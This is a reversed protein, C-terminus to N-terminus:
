RPSGPQVVQLLVEEPSRPDGVPDLVLEDFRLDIRELDSLAPFHRLAQLLLAAKHEFPPEGVSDRLRGWAVICADQGGLGLLEGSPLPSARLLVESRAPDLRGGHNSVDIEDLWAMEAREVSDPHSDFAAVLGLAALVDDDFREGPAPPSGRQGRIVRLTRESRVPRSPMPPGLAVGERDVEVYGGPEGGVFVAAVPHRLEVEIVLRDPLRRQISIVRRVGPAATLARRVADADTRDFLGMTRDALGTGDRLERVDGLRSWEPAQQVDWAALDVRHRAHRARLERSHVAAAVIAGLVSCVVLAKGAFVLRTAVGDSILGDRIM